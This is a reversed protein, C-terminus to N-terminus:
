REYLNIHPANRSKTGQACNLFRSFCRFTVSRWPNERKKFQVIPVLDRLAGCM